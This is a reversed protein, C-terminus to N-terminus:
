LMGSKLSKLAIELSNTYHKWAKNEGADALKKLETLALEHSQSVNNGAVCLDYIQHNTDLLDSSLQKFDNAPKATATKPWISLLDNQVIKVQLIRSENLNLAQACLDNHVAALSGNQTFNQFLVFDCAMLVWLISLFRTRNTM